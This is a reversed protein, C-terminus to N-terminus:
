GCHGSYFAPTVIATLVDTEIQSRGQDLTARAGRLAGEAEEIEGRIRGGTFVPFLISGQIRYTNVNHAPTFGSQGDDVGAAVTPLRTAKISQVRLEAAKVDALAARYDARSAFASNIASERDPPAASGYAANDSVDFNATIRAQLVNALSLKAAIYAQEAEQRQQELTNVQQTARIVDLQSAVGLKARDSAVQYLEEALKRQDTLTDRTTKARLASLYTGVVDLTVIERANNVLLRSSDQAWRFSQQSRLAALNLLDQRLFARADMSAFPGIKGQASPIELGLGVLNITLWAQRAFVDVRPLLASRAQLYQGSTRELNSQATRLAISNSLAIRLAEALSLEPPLSPQNASQALAFPALALLM